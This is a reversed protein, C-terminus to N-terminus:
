QPLQQTSKCSNPPSRGQEYDRSRSSNSFCPASVLLPSVGVATEPVRNLCKADDSRQEQSSSRSSHVDKIEITSECLRRIARPKPLPPLRVVRKSLSLRQRKSKKECNVSSIIISAHSIASERINIKMTPNKSTQMSVFSCPSVSLRQTPSRGHRRHQKQPRSTNLDQVRRIPQAPGCLRHKPRHGRPHLCFHETELKCAACSSHLRTELIWNSLKQVPPLSPKEM